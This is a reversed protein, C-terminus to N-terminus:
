IGRLMYIWIIRSMRMNFSSLLVLVIAIWILIRMDFLTEYFLTGVLFTLIAQAIGLVYSIYMAGFFFGPEKEFVFHCHECEKKMRPKRFNFYINREKYITGKGCNPCKNTIMKNIM